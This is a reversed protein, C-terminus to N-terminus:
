IAEHHLLMTAQNKKETCVSCQTAAAKTFARSALLEVTYRLYMTNSTSTSRFNPVPGIPYLITFRKVCDVNGWLDPLYVVALLGIIYYLQVGHM